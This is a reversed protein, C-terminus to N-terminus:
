LLEVNLDEEEAANALPKDATLFVSANVTKASVIQLADAEYIHHKEIISWTRKIISLRLPVVIAFGLKLLRKIDLLFRSKVLMHENDGLRGIRRARDFAGIVEGINWINFAVKVEGSYAQLFIRRIKESSPEEIYRKIIASSDLYVTKWRV